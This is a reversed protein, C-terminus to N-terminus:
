FGALVAGVLRILHPAPVDGPQRSRDAPLEGAQIQDNIHVAALDDAPFHMLNLITRLGPREHFARHPTLADEVRRPHQMTIVAARELPRGDLGQQAPEADGRGEATRTDAIVVGPAQGARLRLTAM